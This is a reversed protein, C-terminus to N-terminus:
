CSVKHKELLIGTLQRKDITQTSGFVPKELGGNKDDMGIGPFIM